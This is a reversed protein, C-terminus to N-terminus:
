SELTARPHCKTYLDTLNQTTCVRRVTIGRKKGVEQLWLTGCEVHPLRGVGQRAAISRAGSADSFIKIKAQVGSLLKVVEAIHLAESAATVMAYCEAEASSRAPTSQIGCYDMVVSDGVTVGAGVSKRTIKDNSWDSDTFVSVEWIDEPRPLRTAVDMAGKLYRAVKKLRAMDSTMPRALGHPLEKAVFNFDGRTTRLCRLLGVCRRYISTESDNLYDARQQVKITRTTTIPVYLPDCDAINLVRLIAMAHKPNGFDWTGDKMMLRERKLHAYRTTEKIIPSRKLSIDRSLTAHFQVIGAERGAVHLDDQHIGVILGTREDRYFCPERQSRSLGLDSAKKAVFDGYAASASRRGYLKKHLVFLTDEVHEGNEEMAGLMEQPPICAVNEGEDCHFYANSADGIVYLLNKAMGVVNILRQLDKAAAPTYLGGM